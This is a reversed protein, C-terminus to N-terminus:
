ILPTWVKKVLAVYLFIYSTSPRESPTLYIAEYTWKYTLLILWIYTFSAQYKFICKKKFRRCWLLLWKIIILLFLFPHIELKNPLYTSTGYVEGTVIFSYCPVKPKLAVPIVPYLCRSVMHTIKPLMVYLSQTHNIWYTSLSIKIPM